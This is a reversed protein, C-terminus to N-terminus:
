EIDDANLMSITAYDVARLETQPSDIPQYDSLWMEQTGEEPWVLDLVRTHNSTDTPAGGIRWQAAQPEVDRIRMVGASPFGEQSMVAAAFHWQDPGEGLLSTPVRITVRQQGPDALIFMESSTAIKQAGDDEGPIFLGPVWGEVTIAYDWAFEDALALNRGPLLAQGGQGDGDQDIYIDFTQISVGNPSDWPNDVPGAMTFRFLISEEDFGVEFQTVDYSGPQFVADTPYTYTGPGYDDGSPDDVQLVFTTRGLDPINIVAPGTAPLQDVDLPTTVGAVAQSQRFLLRVSFRDGLDANGLLTLPVALEVTEPGIAVETLEGAPMWENEDAPSALSASVVAADVIQVSLRRNAPFGLLTGAESFSTTAGSGPVRLYLDLTADAAGASISGWDQNADVRIYFNRSDFGYAFRAFVPDGGAMAGGSTAYVGAADWEGDAAQGDIQPTFTGAQLQDAEAARQPIIPVQVFTPVDEGLANYVAELTSRFQQDFAEDNNSTQDQGFWWFWDSGEAIYMQTFAEELAEPAIERLGFEYERLLSRTRALYDWARNEEEEGIWTAYDHNIWSGAWLSDIAPQQPALELFQSPTVTQLLPDDSLGQYLSHLFAKGDNDYFEWANEGDLIISLLHPGEANQELLQRRAAHLRGLLDAAAAEGPLGSYTFGVKDSLNVDRFIMAVPGGSQGQVYYPRYLQDAQQVVEESNRSFTDFGLSNALVGEDSAMWEIGSRAVMTVIQQAVAGEAPWMGRPPRGFHEEYFQVGLEVQAVADQGFIFEESPLELDPLAERALSTNVLLPLIPHSFPTMTVEIQGAEQLQRHIPIVEEILRLHEDLVVAKDSEAYDGQQAVLAALPEEALWDPDTWALNFLVQLDRFDQDTFTELPAASSERLEHLEQYRPFSAIIKENTDFFRDLIFQRQETTLEEAPIETHYWYLDKAGAAFDDLQRILSPTLNFTVNVEPYQAVTTAMDVYDKAAHVRVWPREYLGTAPDKFYVPQHQHWVLAVYLPQEAPLAQGSESSATEETAEAAPESEMPQTASITPSAVPEETPTPTTAEDACAAFFTLLVVLFAARRLTM